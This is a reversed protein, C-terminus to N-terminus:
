LAAIALDPTWFTGNQGHLGCKQLTDTLNRGKSLKAPKCAEGDKGYATIRTRECGYFPRFAPCLITEM